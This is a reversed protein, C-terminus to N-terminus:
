FVLCMFHSNWYLVEDISVFTQENTHKPYFTSLMLWLIHMM